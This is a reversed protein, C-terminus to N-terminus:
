HLSLKQVASDASIGLNGPIISSTEQVEYCPRLKRGIEVEDTTYAMLSSPTSRFRLLTRFIPEKRLHIRSSYLPSPSRPVPSPCLTSASEPRRQVLSCCSTAKLLSIKIKPLAPNPWKSSNFNSKSNLNFPNHSGAHLCRLHVPYCHIMLWSVM